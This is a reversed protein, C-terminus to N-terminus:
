EFNPKRKEIFASIGENRDPHQFVSVFANKEMIMGSEIDTFLGNHVAEKAKRVAFNGNKLIQKLTQRAEELLNDQDIVRNVLGIQLAEEASIPTGTFILEKARREGIARALRQTGGFGPILGLTVEPLGLKANGSAFIFDCALAMELGGGLAYGNVAAITVAPSQEM